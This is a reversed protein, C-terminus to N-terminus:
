VRGIFDFHECDKSDFLTDIPADGHCSSLFMPNVKRYTFAIIPKGERFGLVRLAIGETPIFDGSHQIGNTIKVYEKNESDYVTQNIKFM